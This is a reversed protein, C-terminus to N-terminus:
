DGLTVHGQSLGFCATDAMASSYQLVDHADGGAVEAGLDGRESKEVLFLSV